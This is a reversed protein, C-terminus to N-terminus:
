RAEQDLRDIDQQLRWAARRNILIIALFVAGILLDVGLGRAFPADVTLETDVGWRFFVVGPLFPGVYWVPVSRLADRQREFQRRQYDLWSREGRDSPAAQTSARVRLQWAVVFTALITLVSGTRMLPYPFSFFYISFVVVVAVCCLYELTNRFAIRRQFGTAAGRLADLDFDPATTPQARWQRKLEDDANAPFPERRGSPDGGGNADSHADSHADSPRNM